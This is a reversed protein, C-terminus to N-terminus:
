GFLGGLKNIVYLICYGTLMFPMFPMEYDLSKYKRNIYLAGVLAAMISSLWVVLVTNMFGLYLGTVMIILADGKGIKEKSIVSFLYVLGGVLVGGLVSTIPYPKMIVNLIIGIVAFIAIEILRVQKSRLDEYTALIYLCLLGFTEM